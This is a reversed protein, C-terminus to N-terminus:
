WRGRFPPRASRGGARRQHVPRLSRRHRLVHRRTGRRGPSLATMEQKDKPPGYSFSMGMCGLGIASVELNSKGIQTQSAMDISFRYKVDSRLWSEYAENVKQIPIVEVDATINHKGCFDLM